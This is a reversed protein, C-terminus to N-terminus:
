FIGPFHKNLIEWDEHERIWRHNRVGEIIANEDTINYSIGNIIVGTVEIATSDDIIYKMSEPKCNEVEEVTANFILEYARYMHQVIVPLYDLTYLMDDTHNYIYIDSMDYSVRITDSAGINWDEICEEGEEYLGEDTITGSLLYGRAGIIRSMDETFYVVQQGLYLVM